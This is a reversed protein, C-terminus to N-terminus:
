ANVPANNTALQVFHDRILNPEIDDFRGSGSDYVESWPTGPQHTLASLQFAHYGGYDRYVRQIVGKEAASLNARVPARPNDDFVGIDLEENKIEQMVPARGHRRLAQWLDRYVISRVM